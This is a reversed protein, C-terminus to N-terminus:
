NNESEIHLQANYLRSYYGGKEILNQHAGIEVIKGKDM